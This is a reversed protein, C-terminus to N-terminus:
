VSFATARSRHYLSRIYNMIAREREGKSVLALRRILRAGQRETTSRSTEFDGRDRDLSNRDVCM